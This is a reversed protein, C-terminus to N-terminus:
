FTQPKCVTLFLNFHKHSVFLFKRQLIWTSIYLMLKPKIQDKGTMAVDYSPNTTMAMNDPSTKKIEEYEIVGTRSVIPQTVATQKNSYKRKHYYCHYCIYHCCNDSYQSYLQVSSCHSSGSWYVNLLRHNILLYM